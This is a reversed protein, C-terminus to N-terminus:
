EVHDQMHACSSVRFQHRISHPGFDARLRSSWGEFEQLVRVFRGWRTETLKLENGSRDHIEVQSVRERM